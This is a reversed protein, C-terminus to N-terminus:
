SGCNYLQRISLADATSKQPCFPIKLTVSKTICCISSPDCRFEGGSIVKWGNREGEQAVDSHSETLSDFIRLHHMGGRDEFIVYKFM